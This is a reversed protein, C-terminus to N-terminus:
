AVAIQEQVMGGTIEPTHNTTHNSLKWDLLKRAIEEDKANFRYTEWYPRIWPGTFRVQYRWEPLGAAAKRIFDEWERQKVRHLESGDWVFYVSGSGDNGSCALAWDADHQSDVYILHTGCERVSWAFPVTDDREACAAKDHELLDGKYHEPWGLSSAANVLAYYHKMSRM